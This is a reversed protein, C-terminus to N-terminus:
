ASASWLHLRACLTCKGGLGWTTGRPSPRVADVVVVSARLKAAERACALGGSGGGIVVLNADNGAATKSVTSARCSPVTASVLFAPVLRLRVRSLRHM